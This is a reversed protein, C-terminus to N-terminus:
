WSIHRKKLPKKYDWMCLIMGAIPSSTVNWSLSSYMYVYYDWIEVVVSDHVFDFCLFKSELYHIQFQRGCFESWMIVDDFPFMKRTVPRKHPSNVPWRNIGRVFALSTSSQHKRQDAGWYVTSYVIALSWHFKFWFAVIEMGFFWKFITQLITAM